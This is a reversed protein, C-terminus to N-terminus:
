DPYVDQLLRDVVDHAVGTLPRSSQLLQVREQFEAVAAPCVRKMTLLTQTFLLRAPISSSDALCLRLNGDLIEREGTLFRDQVGEMASCRVALLQELRLLYDIFGQGSPIQYASPSAQPSAGAHKELSQLLQDVLPRLTGELDTMAFSAHLTDLCSGDITRILRLEARWPDQKVNLHITIAYDCPPEGQRAYAAVQADDWATRGVAFGGPPGIVWPISTSSRVDSQWHLAEALYLPMARSLRGAEDALHFEDKHAPAAAEVSGGVLCVVPGETPRAPFLEVAPSNPKLWVPGEISLFTIRMRSRAPAEETSLRAKALEQDWYSLSEKWDPRKQAHLQEMIGSAQALHGLDICAKVLNNGVKLGHVEPVFHPATHNLIEPLHGQNGLDGSMQMLLDTPVPRPANALSEAYLQLASALDRKELAAKAIRLQAAWSGPLAAIRRMAQLGGEEGHSERHLAEWWLVGNDLDPDLQLAQWLTETTRKEDNREAYVKALNTLVNGTSGHQNIYRQLVQESEDVQGNKLLCIALLTSGREAMPDIELLRRCADQLEGAFGDQLGNIIFSALQNPDQWAAELNPGLVSQRWQERTILHERGFEDYVKIKAPLDVSVAPKPPAADTKTRGFLKDFFGMLANSTSGEM